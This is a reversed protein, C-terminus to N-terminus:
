VGGRRERARRDRARKVDARRNLHEYFLVMEADSLALLAKHKVNCAALYEETRQMVLSPRSDLMVDARTSTVGHARLARKVALPYPHSHM